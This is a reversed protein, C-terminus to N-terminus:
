SNLELFIFALSISLTGPVFPCKWKNSAILKGIKKLNKSASERESGRERERVSERVSERECVRERECV